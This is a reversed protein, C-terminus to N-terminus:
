TDHEDFRPAPYAARYNTPFANVDTYNPILPSMEGRLLGDHGFGEARFQFPLGLFERGPDATPGSTGDQRHRTPQHRRGVVGEEPVRLEGQPILRQAQHGVGVGLVEGL